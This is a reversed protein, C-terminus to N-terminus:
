KSRSINGGIIHYLLYVLGSLLFLVGAAYYVPVYPSNTGAIVLIGKLFSGTTLVAIGSNYLNYFVRCGELHKIDPLLLGLILYFVAGGLLPYLFMWTMYGSKEGHGFLSYVANAAIAFLSVMLYVFVTKKNKLRKIASTSM